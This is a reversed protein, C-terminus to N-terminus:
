GGFIVLQVDDPLLSNLARMVSGKLVYELRSRQQAGIIVREVGFTAAQEAITYGVDYSPIQVSQHDLGAESCIREILEEQGNTPMDLQAPLAGVAIEKVRLIFLFANRAKAEDIAFKILKENVDKLALLYKRSPISRRRRRAPAAVEPVAEVAPVPVKARAKVIARASLGAILIASAFLAAQVKNVAISIEILLLVIASIAM